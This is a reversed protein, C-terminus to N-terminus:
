KCFNIGKSCISCQYPRKEDEEHCAQFHTKREGFNEFMHCPVPIEIIKMERETPVPSCSLISHFYENHLNIHHAPLLIQVHSNFEEKTIMEDLWQNLLKTYADKNNGLANYLRQQCNFTQNKSEGIRAMKIEEKEKLLRLKEGKKLKRAEKVEQAHSELIHQHEKQKNQKSNKSSTQLHERSTARFKGLLPSASIYDDSNPSAPIYDDSDEDLNDEIYKPKSGDESKDALRSSKRRDMEEQAKINEERLKEYASLESKM